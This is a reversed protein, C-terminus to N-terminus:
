FGFVVGGAARYFSLKTDSLELGLLGVDDFTRFVRLDGRVGIHRGFMIMMGGGMNWGFNNSSDLISGLTLDVHSKILGVGGHVYPRVPGIKPGIVVNTMLTLVSVEGAESDGFFNRAYGFDVELGGLAWLKGGSVGFNSDKDECNTATICGSDGGFNFGIFPSIFGQAAAPTPTFAFAGLVFLLAALARGSRRPLFRYRM